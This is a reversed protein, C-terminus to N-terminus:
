LYVSITLRSLIQRFDCVVRRRKGLNSPGNFVNSYKTTKMICMTKKQKDFIGDCNMWFVHTSTERIPFLSYAPNIWSNESNPISRLETDIWCSLRIPTEMEFFNDTIKNWYIRSNTPVSPRNKGLKTFLSSMLVNNLSLWEQLSTTKISQSALVPAM